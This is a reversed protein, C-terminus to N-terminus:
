PKAELPVPSVNTSTRPYIQKLRDCDAEFILKAQQMSRIRKSEVKATLQDLADVYAMMAAIEDTDPLPQGTNTDVAQMPIEDLKWQGASGGVRTFHVVQGSWRCVFVQAYAPFNAKMEDPISVTITARDGHITPAAGQARAFALLVDIVQDATVVQYLTMPSRPFAAQSARIWRSHALNEAFLCDMGTPARTPDVNLCAYAAAADGNKLARSLSELTAFPTSLDADPATTPRISLAAPRTTASPAIAIAITKTKVASGMVQMASWLAAAVGAVVLAIGAALKVRTLANIGNTPPAGSPAAGAAAASAARCAHLVGSVVQLRVAEDLVGAPGAQATLLGAVAGPVTVIGHRGFYARLKEMCRDVRKRAAEESIGLAEGVERLPRGQFYRLVLAQRDQERLRALGADLMDLMAGDASQPGRTMLVATEHRRRRRESRALNACTYRATSLLWAALTSARLSRSAAKQSVLLFVAQTADEALQRDRLQRWCSSYVLAVYREVLAAIAAESRNTAYDELLQADDSNM